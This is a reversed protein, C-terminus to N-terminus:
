DMHSKAEVKIPGGSTSLPIPRGPIQQPTSLSARIGQSLSKFFFLVKFQLLVQFRPM